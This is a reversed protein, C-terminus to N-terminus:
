KKLTPPLREVVGKHWDALVRSETRDGPPLETGWRSGAPTLLFRKLKGDRMHRRVFTSVPALLKGFGWLTLIAVPWAAFRMWDIHM